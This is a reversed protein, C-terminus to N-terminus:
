SEKGEHIGTRGQCTLKTPDLRAYIGAATLERCICCLEPREVDLRRAPEEGGRLIGWCRRCVAHTWHSM